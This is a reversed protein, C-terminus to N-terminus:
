ACSFFARNANKKKGGFLKGAVMSVLGTAIYSFATAAFGTLGLGAAIGPMVSSALSVVLKAARAGM